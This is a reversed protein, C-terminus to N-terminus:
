FFHQRVEHYVYLSYRVSATCLSAFTVFTFAFRSFSKVGFTSVAAFVRLSLLSHYRGRGSRDIWDFGFEFYFKATTVLFCNVFIAFASHNFLRHSAARFVLFNKDKVYM